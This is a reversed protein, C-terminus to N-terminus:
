GDLQFCFLRLTPKSTVQPTCIARGPGGRVGAAGTATAQKCGKQHPWTQLTLNPKTNLRIGLIIVTLYCPLEWDVWKRFEGALPSSRKFLYGKPREDLWPTLWGVWARTTGAADDDIRKRKMPSRAPAM